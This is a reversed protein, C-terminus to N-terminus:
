LTKLNLNNHRDSNFSKFLIIIPSFHLALFHINFVYIKKLPFPVLISGQPVGCVVGM